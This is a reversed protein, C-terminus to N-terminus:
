QLPLEEGITRELLRHFESAAPNMEGQGHRYWKRLAPRLERSTLRQFTERARQSREGESVNFWHFADMLGSASRLDEPLTTILSVVREYHRQLQPDDFQM